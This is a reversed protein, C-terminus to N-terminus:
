ELHCQEQHCIVSSLNEEQKNLFTYRYSQDQPDYQYRLEGSANKYSRLFSGEAWQQLTYTWKGFVQTQESYVFSQRRDFYAKEHWHAGTFELSKAGNPYEISSIQIGEVESHSEKGTDTKTKGELSSKDFRQGRPKTKDKLYRKSSRSGGLDTEELELGLAETGNEHDGRISLSIETLLKGTKDRLELPGQHPWSLKQGNEFFIEAGSPILRIEGPLPSLTQPSPSSSKARASVPSFASLLVISIPALFVTWGSRYFKKLNNSFMKMM